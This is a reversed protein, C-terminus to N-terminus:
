VTKDINNGEKKAKNKLSYKRLYEMQEKDSDEIDFTTKCNVLALAFIMFLFILTIIAIVAM